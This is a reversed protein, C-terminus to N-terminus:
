DRCVNYHNVCLGMWLIVNLIEGCWLFSLSLLAFVSDGHSEGSVILTQSVQSSYLPNQEQEEWPKRQSPQRMQGGTVLRSPPFAKTEMAELDAGIVGTQEVIRSVHKRQYGPSPEVDEEDVVTTRFIRAEGTSPDVVGGSTVMPLRHEEEFNALDRLGFEENLLRQHEKEKERFLVVAFFSPLLFSFHLVASQADCLIREYPQRAGRVHGLTNYLLSVPFLQM